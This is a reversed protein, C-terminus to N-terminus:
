ERVREIYIYLLSNIYCVYLVNNTDNIYIYIYIYIYIDQMGNLPRSLGGAADTFEGRARNSNSNDNSNTRSYILIIM